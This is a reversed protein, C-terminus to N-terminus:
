FFLFYVNMKRSDYASGLSIRGRLSSRFLRWLDFGSFITRIHRAAWRSGVKIRSRLKDITQSIPSLEHPPPDGEETSLDLGHEEQFHHKLKELV